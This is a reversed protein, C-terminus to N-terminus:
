HTKSDESRADADAHARGLMGSAFLATGNIPTTVDRTIRYHAFALMATFVAVCVASWELLTHVHEGVIAEKNRRNEDVSSRVSEETSSAPLKVASFDLGLRNLLFPLFTLLLVAVVLQRPLTVISTAAAGSRPTPVPDAM